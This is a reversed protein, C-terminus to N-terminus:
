LRQVVRAYGGARRIRERCEHVCGCARCCVIICMVLKVEVLLCEGEYKRCWEWGEFVAVGEDVGM